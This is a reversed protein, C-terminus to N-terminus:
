FFRGPGSFGDPASATSTGSMTDGDIEARALAIVARIHQGGSFQYVIFQFVIGEETQRWTGLSPGNDRGDVRSFAGGEAFAYMAPFIAEAEPSQEIHVTTEWAGSV